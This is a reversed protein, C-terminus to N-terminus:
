FGRDYKFVEIINGFSTEIDKDCYGLLDFKIDSLKLNESRSKVLHDNEINIINGTVKKNIKKQTNYFTKRRINDDWIDYLGVFKSGSYICTQYKGINEKIKEINTVVNHLLYEVLRDAFPYTNKDNIALLSSKSIGIDFNYNEENYKIDTVMGQFIDYNSIYDGELIVISSTVKSPIKLILKLNKEQTWYESADFKPAYLIPKNFVSGAIKKYTKTILEKSKNSISSGTYIMEAIEYSTPSDIAITYKEDFKIPVIYYKFNKDYTDLTFQAGNISFVSYLEAPSEFSFCNYLSMLDLQKYDRLFRLYNGLYNHTYSDYISSNIVLNTTLNVQKENFIFRNLHKLKGNEGIAISNEKIYLRGNYIPKDKRYVPYIPLNFTKLYEKIFGTMNNTENFRYHM